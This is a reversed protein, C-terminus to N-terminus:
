AEEGVGRFFDEVDAASLKQRSEHYEDEWGKANLWTSPYPIFQGWNKEWDESKKSKELGDMIKEFLGNGPKIKKWVKEAQGKSKKKPYAKWFIEFQPTQPTYISRKKRIGEKSEEEQKV